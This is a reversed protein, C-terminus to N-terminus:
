APSGPGRGLRAVYWAEVAAFFFYPVFFAVVFAVVSEGARVVAVTGLAVVVIRVLFAVVMVALAAQVPKKAAAVRGMALLSGFATLSASCAGILAARRQGEGAAAALLVALLAAGAATLLPRTM